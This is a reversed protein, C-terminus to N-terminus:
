EKAGKKEDRANIVFGVLLWAILVTMIGYLIWSPNM